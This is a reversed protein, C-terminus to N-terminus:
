RYLVKMRGWTSGEVATTGSNHFTDVFGNGAVTYVGRPEPDAQIIITGGVKDWGQLPAVGAGTETWYTKVGHNHLRTLASASPHGYPNGNGVSIVGAEPTTANLWNDNSSTASGHHHVKYVEVDGVEPGVTAEVDNGSGGTLDGGMVEDFAGYTIKLVMSKSNEDSGGVPYVGAGNLDICTITVPNASGADLTVIQGKTMTRRKSGLANVYNTYSQSSYSYGRDYGYVNLVVGSSFVNGLCGIHDSHYHSAFHYDVSTIGLGKVYNVFAPCNTYTGDDVLVVQGLPSIIVAGDGQGVDVQYIQLKGNGLGALVFPARLLLLVLVFVTVLVLGKLSAFRIKAM